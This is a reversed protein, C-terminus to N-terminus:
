KILQYLNKGEIIASGKYKKWNRISLFFTIKGLIELMAKSNYFNMVSGTHM